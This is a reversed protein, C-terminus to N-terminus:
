PRLIRTVHDSTKIWDSWETLYAEACRSNGVRVFGQSPDQRFVFAKAQDAFDLAPRTVHGASIVLLSKGAAAHAM